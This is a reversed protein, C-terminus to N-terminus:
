FTTLCPDNSGELNFCAKKNKKFGWYNQVFKHSINYSRFPMQSFLHIISFYHFDSILIYFVFFYSVITYKHFLGFSAAIYGVAIFLM